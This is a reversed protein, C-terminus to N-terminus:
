PTKLNLNMFNGFEYQTTGNICAINKIICVLDGEKNRVEVKSSSRGLPYRNTSIAIFTYSSNSEPLKFFEIEHEITMVDINSFLCRYAYSFLCLMPSLFIITTMPDCKTKSDCTSFGGMAVNYSSLFIAFEFDTKLTFMVNKFLRDGRPINSTTVSLNEYLKITETSFENNINNFLFDSTTGCESKIQLEAMDDVRGISKLNLKSDINENIEYLSVKFVKLDLDKAEENKWKVAETYHHVFIAGTYINSSGMLYKYKDNNHM